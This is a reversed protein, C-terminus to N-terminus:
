CKTVEDLIILKFFVCSICLFPALTIFDLNSAQCLVQLLTLFFNNLPSINAWAEVALAEPMMNPSADTVIPLLVTEACLCMPKRYSLLM